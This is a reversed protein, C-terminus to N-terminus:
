NEKNCFGKLKIIFEYGDESKLELVDEYLKSPVKMSKIPKFTVPIKLFKKSRVLVSSQHVIFPIQPKTINLKVDQSSPNKVTVFLTNNQGVTTNPFEYIENEVYIDTRSKKKSQQAVTPPKEMEASETLCFSSGSIKFNCNQKQGNSFNLSLEFFRFFCDPSTPMFKIVINTKEMMQLTGSSPLIQLVNAFYLTDELREAFLMSFPHIDWEVSHKEQNQVTLTTESVKGPATANLIIEKPFECINTIFIPSTSCIITKDAASRESPISQSNHSPTNETDNFSEKLRKLDKLVKIFVSKESGGCIVKIYGKYDDCLKGYSYPIISIRLGIQGKASVIGSVPSVSIVDVACEIKFKLDQKSLNILLIRNDKSTAEITLMEPKVTWYGSVDVKETINEETKSTCSSMDVHFTPSSPMSLRNLTSVTFDKVPPSFDHRPGTTARRFMISNTLTSSCTNDLVSLADFTMQSYSADQQVVNLHILYKKLTSAFISSINIKSVYTSDYPVREEGVFPINFNIGHYLSTHPYKSNEGSSRRLQQRIIEDGYLLTIISSDAVNLASFDEITCSAILTKHENDLLVFETPNIVVQAKSSNMDSGGSSVVVKVFVPRLGINHVQLNSFFTRRERSVVVDLCHGVGEKEYVEAVNLKGTGGYGALPMSFIKQDNEMIPKIALFASSPAIRTPSFAVSISKQEKSTLGLIFTTTQENKDNLLKFSSQFKEKIFLKAQLSKNSSNRMSFSKIITSGLDVGGWSLYKKNCEIINSSNHHGSKHEKPTKKTPANTKFNNSSLLDSEATHKGNGILEAISFVKGHPQAAAQFHGKVILASTPSFSISITSSQMSKLNLTAPSVSFADTEDDVIMLDYIVPFSCINKVTVSQSTVTGIEACLLLRNQTTDTLALEAKGVTASIRLFGLPESIVSTQVAATLTFNVDSNDNGAEFIIPIELQSVSKENKSSPLRYLMTKPSLIKWGTATPFNQNKMQNLGFSIRNDKLDNSLSVCLPVVADCKNTITIHETVTSGAIVSGIDLNERGNSSISISPRLSEYQIKTKLSSNGIAATTIENPNLCAAIQLIVTVKGEYRPSLTVRIDTTNGNGRPFMCPFLVGTMELSVSEENIYGSIYSIHYFYQLTHINQITLTMYQSDGVSIKEPFFLENPGQIVPFSHSIAGQVSFPLCSPNCGTLPGQSISHPIAVSLMPTPLSEQTSPNHCPGNHLYNGYQVSNQPFCLNHHFQEQHNLYKMCGYQAHHPNQFSVATSCSNSCSSPPRTSPFHKQKLILCNSCECLKAEKDDKVSNSETSSANLNSPLNKIASNVSFQGELEKQMSTESSVTFTGTSENRDGCISSLYKACLNTVNRSDKSKNKNSKISQAKNESICAELIRDALALPQTTSAESLLQSLVSGRLLETENKSLYKMDRVNTLASQESGYITEDYNSESCMSSEQSKQDSTTQGETIEFVSEATESFISDEPIKRVPTSVFTGFFPRERNPDESLRGLTETRASFLTGISIHRGSNQLFSNHLELYWSPATIENQSPPSFGSTVSDKSNNGIEFKCEDKLIEEDKKFMEIAEDTNVFESDSVELQNQYASAIFKTIDKYNLECDFTEDIAANQFTSNQAPMFANVSVDKSCELSDPEFSQHTENGKSISSHCSKTNSQAFMSGRLVGDKLDECTLDDKTIEGFSGSVESSGLSPSKFSTSRASIEDASFKLSNENLKELSRIFNQEALSQNNLIAKLESSNPDLFSCAKMVQSLSTVKDKSVQESPRLEKFISDYSPNFTEFISGRSIRSEENSPASNFSQKSKEADYTSSINQSSRDKIIDSEKTGVSITPFAFSSKTASTKVSQFASLADYDLNLEPINTGDYEIDSSSNRDSEEVDKTDKSSVSHNEIEDEELENPKSEKAKTIDKGKMFSADAVDSFNDMHLIGLSSNADEAMSLEITANFRPKPFTFNPINTVDNLIPFSHNQPTFSSDMEHSIVRKMFLNEPRSANPKLVTSTKLPSKPTKSLSTDDLFGKNENDMVSFIFYAVKGLSTSIHSRM